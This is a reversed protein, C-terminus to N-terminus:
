SVSRRGWLLLQAQLLAKTVRSSQGLRHLELWSTTGAKNGGRNTTVAIEMGAARTANLVAPSFGGDPYSFVPLPSAGAELLDRYSGAIEDDLMHEPLRDLRPHTRSHPALSAGEQELARLDAWGLVSGGTAQVDGAGLEDVLRDCAPLMELHPMAKFTAVVRRYTRIRQGQRGLRLPGFMTTATVGSPASVIATYLRDWWFPRDPRDPFGTPVFLTVPLGLRRLVPWAHDRFDRYADDFTLVVTRPPLTHGHRRAALLDAMPLVRYRSALLAMQGEFSVPTADILVDALGPRARWHNVRHYMLIAPRNTESPVVLELLDLLRGVGPVRSALVALDAAKM